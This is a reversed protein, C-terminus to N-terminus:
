ELEIVCGENSRLELATLSGNTERDMHTSVALRGTGFDFIHQPRSSFNLAILVREEGYERRYVLCDESGIDLTTYTGVVLAQSRRRYQILARYLSLMSTEDAQQAAVNSSQFDDALPLWPMANSFGAYRTDDWQMPTRQPDRGHGPVNIGWPDRAQEAPVVVDSMGLEDGYYIFPTGRLTLLLMAAIRAQEVGIRTAVRSRDHNSIVYNPFGHQPVIGDYSQIFQGVTRANWALLILWFNFPLHLEDDSGYFATMEAFPAAYNIEGVLVSGPYLDLAQRFRRVFEHVGPQYCSHHHLLAEWPNGALFDPNPPDDRWLDDKLLFHIVDVRLGAVGRKMWFHIVELMAEVVEPNRWNLDPQEPLFSHLYFQGTQEDWQWASGGFVSLWNNPPSGDPRADRWIYWDRKASVRSARSQLFWPHHDSSHNPVFDLIVRIDRRSAEAILRDFDDLTGFLPHIGTYDSVDYGFDAMPSPYIPSLWIADVGLWALYDLRAIIGPLDGVGDGDNDQFSRPYIQYIIGRQWWTMM